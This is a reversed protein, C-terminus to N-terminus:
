KATRASLDSVKAKDKALSATEQELLKNGRPQRKLLFSSVKGMNKLFMAIIKKRSAMYLLGVFLLFFFVQYIRRINRWHM